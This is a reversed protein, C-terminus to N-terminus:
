EHRLADIPSLNAAKSAPLIGFLMGVLGSFGTAGLVAWWPVSPPPFNPIAKAAIFSLLYGFLIGIIGGIIALMMAEILFQMLIFQRPAGLAKAIGIERTRETVSVLMITMIGVGGVILSIGVIAGAVTTLTSTITGITEAISQSSQVRFDNPQGPEIGHLRRLLAEIRSTQSDLSDIEDVSLSITINPPNTQSSLSLGTQYPMIVYNDASGGFLGATGGRSEMVGVVKFWERGIQIFQGLPDDPLKLDQRAQEGLVVVRRRTQDDSPTIFRGLKPFNQSVFQQYSTTAIVQAAAVNDGNRVGGTAAQSFTPTINSIGDIQFKLQEIDTQRLRNIKGRLRDQQPTDASIVLTNGGLGQLQGLVSEKLGQVLAIVCIVSAVGIVIGLMTLASRLRHARISSLASRICEHLAYVFTAFKNSSNLAMSESSVSEIASM